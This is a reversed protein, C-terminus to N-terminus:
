GAQAERMSTATFEDHEQPRPPAATIGSAVFGVSWFRNNPQDM